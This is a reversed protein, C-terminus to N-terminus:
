PNSGTKEMVEDKGESFSEITEKSFAFIDIKQVWDHPM